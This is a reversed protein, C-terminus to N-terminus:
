YLSYWMGVFNHKNYKIKFVNVNNFSDFSLMLYCDLLELSYNNYHILIEDFKNTIEFQYTHNKDLLILEYLTIFNTDADKTILKEEKIDAHIEYIKKNQTLIIKAPKKM